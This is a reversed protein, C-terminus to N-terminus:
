LSTFMSSLSRTGLFLGEVKEAPKPYNSHLLEEQLLAIDNANRHRDQKNDQKMTTPLVILGDDQQRAELRECTHLEICRFLSNAQVTFAICKLPSSTNGRHDQRHNIVLSGPLKALRHVLQLRINDYRESDATLGMVPYLANRTIEICASSGIVPSLYSPGAPDDLIPQGRVPRKIRM